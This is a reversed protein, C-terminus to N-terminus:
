EPQAATLLIVALPPLTLSVEGESLITPLVSSGAGYWREEGSDLIKRWYGAPIPLELTVPSEGFHFIQCATETSTWRWVMLVKPEEFGM